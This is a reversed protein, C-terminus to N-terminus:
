QYKLENAPNPHLNRAKEKACLTKVRYYTNYLVKDHINLQKGMIINVANDSTWQKIIERTAKNWKLNFMSNM